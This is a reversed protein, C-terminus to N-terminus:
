EQIDQIDRIDKNNIDKINKLLNNKICSDIYIYSSLKLFILNFNYKAFGWKEPTSQVWALHGFNRYRWQARDILRANSASINSSTASINILVKFSKAPKM